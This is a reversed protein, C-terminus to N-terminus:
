ASLEDDLMKAIEAVPEGANARFLALELSKMITLKAMVDPNADILSKIGIVFNNNKPALDNLAGVGLMPKGKPFKKKRVM